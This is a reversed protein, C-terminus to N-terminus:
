PVPPAESQDRASISDVFGLFRQRFAAESFAAARAVCAEASPTSQTCFRLVAARIAAASQEAFLLGTEGDVVSEAAGGRGFAIVPTGCAMSEVPAIGFDEEAAFVFARASRMRQILEGRPVHGLVRINGARGAIRRVAALDPGDGIVDLRLGPMAAFAEAILPVRKYGVLRSATLFVDDHTGGPTFAATDVPPHIVEASRGWAHRIRRAIYASNCAIADPRVASLADWARLRHMQWGWLPRLPWPVRTQYEHQLDWAYRAPSHVYALHRCDPSTIVGKAVCHSNSVVLDYGRLDLQEAALPLLPLYLQPSRAGFPLRQIFSTRVRRGDLRRLGEADPRNTIAFLDAGPLCALIQELVAESGAWRTFWEHIVAVRM